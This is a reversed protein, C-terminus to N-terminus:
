AFGDCSPLSRAHVGFAGPIPSVTLHPLVPPGFKGAMFDLASAVEEALTALRELPNIPPPLPADALVQLLGSAEREATDAEEPRKVKRLLAGLSFHVRALGFRYSPM